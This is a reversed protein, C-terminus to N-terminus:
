HRVSIQSTHEGEQLWNDAHVEAEIGRMRWIWSIRANDYGRGLPRSSEFVNATTLDSAVLELLDPYTPLADLKSLASYAARYRSAISGIDGDIRKLTAKSRLNQHQGRANQSERKVVLRLALSRRLQKLADYAQGSRLQREIHFLRPLLALQVNFLTSPLPIQMDEFFADNEGDDSDEVDDEGLPSSRKWAIFRQHLSQRKRIVLVKERETSGANIASAQVKLSRRLTRLKTVYCSYLWYASHM